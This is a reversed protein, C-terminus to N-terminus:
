INYIIMELKQKEDLLSFIRKLIFLSKIDKLNIKSKNNKFEAM